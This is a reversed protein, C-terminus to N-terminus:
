REDEPTWESMAEEATCNLRVTSNNVTDVKELPLYHHMGGSRVGEKALKIQEGEVRDVTGVDAGDSGVVRMHESIQSAPQM